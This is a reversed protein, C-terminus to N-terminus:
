NANFNHTRPQRSSANPMATNDNAAKGAATEMATQAPAKKRVAAKKAPAPACRNASPTVPYATVVDDKDNDLVVRIKVGDVNDTATYYGNKEKKWKLNDNAAVKRVNSLVDAEDWDKPFKSKCPNASGYLHGGGKKDGHLIHNEAKESIQPAAQAEMAKTIQPAKWAGIGGAIVVVVLIAALIAKNSKFM